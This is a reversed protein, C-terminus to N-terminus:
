ATRYVPTATPITQQLFGLLARQDCLIGTKQHIYDAVAQRTVKNQIVDPAGHLKFHQLIPSAYKRIWGEVLFKYLKPPHWGKLRLTPVGKEEKYTINTKLGGNWSFKGYAIEADIGQERLLVAQERFVMGAISDTEAAAYWSPIILV